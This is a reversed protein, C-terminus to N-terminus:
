LVVGTKEVTENLLFQYDSFITEWTHTKSVREFRNQIFEDRNIKDGWFQIVKDCLESNSIEPSFTLGYKSTLDGVERGIPLVKKSLAEFMVLPQSENHSTILLMDMKLYYDEASKNWVISVSDYKDSRSRVIEELDKEGADSLLMLFSCNFKKRQFEDVLDFFQLPNKMEACRGVWGFVPNDCITAEPNIWSAPIGNPIYQIGSAGLKQQLPINCESVTITENAQEYVLNAIKKFLYVIEKKQAGSDPIKYGCELAVAGKEVELWYIAHETLVLPLNHDQSIKAGLWGAFGTNTVHIVDNKSISSFNILQDLYWAELSQDWDKIMVPPTIRQFSKVNDPIPYLAKEPELSIFTDTAIQLISFSFQPCNKIYQYVWESVGGRYWPYTGEIVLLVNM